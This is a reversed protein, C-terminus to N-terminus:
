IMSLPLLVRPFYIKSVLNANGVLATGSRSVAQSFYNWPLLATLAFVPYWVGDSPLKALYGFIVTFLMMTILPQLIVWSVGIATQKYRIKLERVVLAYLLERYEWLEGWEMSLLGRRNEIIIKRKARTMTTNLPNESSLTNVLAGTDTRM